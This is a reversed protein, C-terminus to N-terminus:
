RVFCRVPPPADAPDVPRRDDEVDVAREDVTFPVAVPDREVLCELGGAQRVVPAGLLVAAQQADGAAPAPQRHEQLVATM